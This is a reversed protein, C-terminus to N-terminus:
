HGHLSVNVCGMPKAHTRADGRWSTRDKACTSPASLPQRSFAIGAGARDARHEAARLRRSLHDRRRLHGHRGADTVVCRAEATPANLAIGLNRATEMDAAGIALTQHARSIALDEMESLVALAVRSAFLKPARAHIHSPSTCAPTPMPSAPRSRSAACSCTPRRRRATARRSAPRPSTAPRAAPPPRQRPDARDPEGLRHRAPDLPRERAGQHRLHRPGPVVEGPGRGAAPRHGPARHRPRRRVRAGAGGAHRDQRRGGLPRRPHAPAARLRGASLAARPQRRRAPRPAQTRPQGHTDQGTRENAQRRAADAAM